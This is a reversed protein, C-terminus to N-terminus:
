KNKLQSDAMVYSLKLELVEEDNELRIIRHLVWNTFSCISIKYGM